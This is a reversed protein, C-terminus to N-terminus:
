SLHNGTNSGVAGIQTLLSVPNSFKSGSAVTPSYLSRTSVPVVQHFLVGSPIRFARSLSLLSFPVFPISRFAHVMPRALFQERTGPAFSSLSFTAFPSPHSVDDIHTPAVPISSSFYTVPYPFSHHPALYPLTRPVMSWRGPVRVSRDGHCSLVSRQAKSSFTQLSRVFM